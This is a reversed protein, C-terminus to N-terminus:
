QMLLKGICCLNVRKMLWSNQLEIVKYKRSNIGTPDMLMMTEDILKEIKKRKETM